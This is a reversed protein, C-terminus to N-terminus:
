KLLEQLIRKARVLNLLISYIQLLVSLLLAVLNGKPLIGLMMGLACGLAVQHADVKANFLSRFYFLHRVFWVIM